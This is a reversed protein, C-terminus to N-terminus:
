HFTWHKADTDYVTHCCTTSADSPVIDHFISKFVTWNHYGHQSELSCLSKSKFNYGLERGIGSRPQFQIPIPLTSYLILLKIEMVKEFLIFFDRSWIRYPRNGEGYFTTHSYAHPFDPFYKKGAFILIKARIVDEWNIQVSCLGGGPTEFAHWPYVEFNWDCSM